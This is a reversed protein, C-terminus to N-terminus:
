YVGRLKIIPLIILFVICESVSFMGKISAKGLSKPVYSNYVANNFSVETDEVFHLEGERTQRFPLSDTSSSHGYVPQFSHLFSVTVCKVAHTVLELTDVLQSFFPIFSVLRFSVAIEVFGGGGGGLFFLFLLHETSECGLAIALGNLPWRKVSDVQLSCM